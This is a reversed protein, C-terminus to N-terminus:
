NARRESWGAHPNTAGRETSQELIGPVDMRDEPRNLVLPDSHMTPADAGPVLDIYYAGYEHDSFHFVKDEVRRFGQREM